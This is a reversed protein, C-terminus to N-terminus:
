QRSSERPLWRPSVGRQIDTEVSTQSLRFPVGQAYFGDQTSPRLLRLPPLPQTGAFPGAAM